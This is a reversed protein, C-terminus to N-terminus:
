ISKFKVNDEAPNIRKCWANCVHKIAGEIEDRRDEGFWPVLVKPEYVMKGDKRVANGKDDKQVQDTATFITGRAKNVNFYVCVTTAGDVLSCVTRNPFFVARSKLKYSEGSKNVRVEAPYFKVMSFILALSNSSSVTSLFKSGSFSAECGEFEEIPFIEIDNIQTM